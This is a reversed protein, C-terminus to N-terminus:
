GSLLGCLVLPPLGLAPVPFGESPLDRAVGEIVVTRVGPSEPFLLSIQLSSVFEFGGLFGRFRDLGLDIDQIVDNGTGALFANRDTVM